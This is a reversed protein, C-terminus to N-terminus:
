FYWAIHHGDSLLFRDLRSMAKGDASFWSFKKGLVPVDVVEMEEVFRNFLIREGQRSDTSSGKRESSHLVVNFDGGLCWEGGGSQQKFALVDEEWLKKKGAISCPSYINIIHTVIDDREVRIGLFGNGSFSNLLKFSDSNWIILMGGSLGEPEQVVWNVNKHGWLSHILHDELSSKKTEEETNSGVGKVKSNKGVSEGLSPVLYIVYPAVAVRLSYSTI